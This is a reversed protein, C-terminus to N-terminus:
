RGISYPVSMDAAAYIATLNNCAVDEPLQQGLQGLRARMGTVQATQGCIIDNMMGEVFPDSSLDITKLLVRAMNIANAHHPIMQQLFTTVPAANAAGVHMETKMKCNLAAMCSEFPTDITDCLLTGQAACVGLEPRYPSTDYTGCLTDFTSATSPTYEFLEAGFPAAGGVIRIKGSTKSHSRSYYYIVGGNKAAEQAIDETITLQAGHMKALWDEKLHGFASDYAQTDYEMIDVSEIRKAKANNIRYELADFDDITARPAGGGHKATIAM